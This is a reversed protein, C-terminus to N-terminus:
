PRRHAVQGVVELAQAPLQALDLQLALHLHRRPELGRLSRRLREVRELEVAERAELFQRPHHGLRDVVDRGHLAAQLAREFRGLVFQDRLRAHRAVQLVVQQARPHDFEFAQRVAEVADDPQRRLLGALLHPEVDDATRDFDVAAHEVAHDARELVQQAVAHGVADLRRAHARRGALIRDARDGDRDRVLAVLDPDLEAVVAGAEVERADAGLADREPQEVGALSASSAASALRIKAGPKEVASATVSSAPRPTPM